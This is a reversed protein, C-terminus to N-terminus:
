ASMSVGKSPQDYILMFLVHLELSIDCHADPHAQLFHFAESLELSSLARPYYFHRQLFRFIHTQSLWDYVSLLIKGRSGIGPTPVPKSKEAHSVATLFTKM